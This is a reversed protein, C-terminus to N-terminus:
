DNLLNKNKFFPSSKQAINIIFYKTERLWFFTVYPEKYYLKVCSDQYKHLNEIIGEEEEEEEKEL